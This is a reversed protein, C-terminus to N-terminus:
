AALLGAAEVVLLGGVVLVAVAGVVLVARSREYWARSSPFRRAFERASIPRPAESVTVGLEDVVRDLGADGWVDARMRFLHSGDSAFAVLERVTREVSAGFTEVLLVRDIDDRPIRRNGTVVGHVDVARADVGVYATGLRVVATGVVVALLVVISAMLAWLRFPFSVWVLAVALPVASFVISLATSRVLASRPRVVLDYTRARPRVTAQATMDGM